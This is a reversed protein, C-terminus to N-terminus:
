QLRRLWATGLGTVRTVGAASKSRRKCVDLYQPLGEFWRECWEAGLVRKMEERLRQEIPAIMAAIRGYYDLARVHEDFDTPRAVGCSLTHVEPRALCYLDNFQMPSLPACLEAMKAPRNQLMGGKDNPSIIFVGMDRKTAAQVSSWNLPNVFYWHLNVYDFEGSEIASTIVRPVAHTSFGIFRVRGEKQLQRAVELCGGRRMAFDLVEENNIGHLGLLDVYDLQLNGMSKNFTDLFEKADACPSVKTQIIMRERPLHPLVKGLQVESTGYGRATEIHNIGLELSRHITAELNAQGEATIGGADEDKWSHQYRMGGCSIVPMSLKTRGFRRYKMSPQMNNRQNMKMSVVPRSKRSSSRAGTFRRSGAPSIRGSSSCITPACLLVTFASRGHPPLLIM